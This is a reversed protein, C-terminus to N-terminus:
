LDQMVNGNLDLKGMIMIRVDLTSYLLSFTVNTNYIQTTPDPICFLSDARQLGEPGSRM